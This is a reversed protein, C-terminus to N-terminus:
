CSHSRKNPRLEISVTKQNPTDEIHSIVHPYKWRQNLGEVQRKATYRALQRYSMIIDLYRTRCNTQELLKNLLKQTRNDAFTDCRKQKTLCDSVIHEFACDKCADIGSTYVAVYTKNNLKLIDGLNTDSM